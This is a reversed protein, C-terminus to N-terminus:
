ITIFIYVFYIFTFLTVPLHMQTERQRERERKAEEDTTVNQFFDLYEKYVRTSYCIAGLRIATWPKRIM